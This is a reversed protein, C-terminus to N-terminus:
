YHTLNENVFLRTMEPGPFDEINKAERRRSNIANRYYAQQHIACHYNTANNLMTSGDSQQHRKPPLPHAILIDSFNADVNLKKAIDVVINTVNEEKQEPIGELEM